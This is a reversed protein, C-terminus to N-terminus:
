LLWETADLYESIEHQYKSYSHCTTYANVLLSTSIYSKLSIGISYLNNSGIFVVLGIHILHLFLTLAMGCALPKTM